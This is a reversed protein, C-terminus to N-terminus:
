PVTRPAVRATPPPTSRSSACSTGSSACCCDVGPRSATSAANFPTSPSQSSARALGSAIVILRRLRADRKVQQAHQVVHHSSVVSNCLDVLYIQESHETFRDKVTVLDVTQGHLYLDQIEFFIRQHLPRYFDEPVLVGLADNIADESMMMSGLISREADVSHPPIREALSPM